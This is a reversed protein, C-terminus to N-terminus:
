REVHRLSLASEPHVTVVHEDPQPLWISKENRSCQVKGGGGKEKDPNTREFVYVKKDNARADTTHCHSRSGPSKVRSKRTLIIGYDVCELLPCDM